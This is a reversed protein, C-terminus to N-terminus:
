ADDVFSRYVAEARERLRALQPSMYRERITEARETRHASPRAVRSEPVAQDLGHSGNRAAALDARSIEGSVYARIAPAWEPRLAREDILAYALGVNEQTHEFPTFSTGYHANLREIVAGLDSTVDEFRAVFCRDKYARLPGYFRVYAAVAQELSVYPSRITVSATADVPKRIISMAPLGRDAAAMLQIPAHLHHAVRVPEPQAMQFAVVSFTNASRMYAEIVIKTDDSLVARVGRYRSWTLYSSHEAWRSRLAWRAGRLYQPLTRRPGTM